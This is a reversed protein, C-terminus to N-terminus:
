SGEPPRHRRSHGVHSLAVSACGIAGGLFFWSELLAALILWAMAMVAMDTASLRYILTRPYEIHSGPAVRLDGVHRFFSINQLHRLYVPVERLLVSGVGVEFLMPWLGFGVTIWWLASLLAM